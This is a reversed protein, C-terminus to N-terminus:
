IGVVRDTLPMLAKRLVKELDEPTEGDKARLVYEVGNTDVTYGAFLSAIAGDPFPIDLAVDHKEDRRIYRVMFQLDNTVATIKYRPSMIRLNDTYDWNMAKKFFKMPPLAMAKDLAKQYRSEDTNADGADNIVESFWEDHILGSSCLADGLLENTLNKDPAEGGLSRLLKIAQSRTFITKFDPTKGYESAPYESAYQDSM